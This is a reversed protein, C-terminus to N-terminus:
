FHFLFGLVASFGSFGLKAQTPSYTSSPTGSEFELLPFTGTGLADIQEIWLNGTTSTTGSSITGKFNGLSAYRGRMEAVLSVAPSFAYELGLGGHFGIGNATTDLTEDVTGLFVVHWADTYKGLYYGVGADLYIKMASSSPLFYYFTATIPIASIKPAWTEAIDVGGGSIGLSSSKSAQLYGVGLGLAIRPNFQLLLEGGFDMGLHVPSFGGSISYGATEFIAAWADSWGQNGTNVDGGDAYVLGGTAKFGLKLQAQAPAQVLVLALALLGFLVMAKRM